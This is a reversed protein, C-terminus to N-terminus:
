NSLFQKELDNVIQKYTQYALENEGNQIFVLAKKLRHKWLRRYFEQANPLANIEQVIVPAKKYYDTVDQQYNSAVYSDRFARFTELEICKDGKNLATTTATTIFCGGGDVKRTGACTYCTERKTVTRGGGCNTCNSGDFHKGSGGCSACTVVKTSSGLGNCSSCTKQGM